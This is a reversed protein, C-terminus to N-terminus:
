KLMAVCRKLIWKLIKSWNFGVNSRQCCEEREKGLKLMYPTAFLSSTTLIRHLMDPLFLLLFITEGVGLGPSFVARGRLVQQFGALARKTIVLNERTQLIKQNNVKSKIRSRSILIEFYKELVTSVSFLFSINREPFSSIGLYEVKSLYINM